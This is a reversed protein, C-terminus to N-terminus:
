SNPNENEHITILPNKKRESGHMTSEHDGHYILSTKNRYIPIRRNNLRKTLQQGVGSSIGPIKFRVRDIAEMWYGILSLTKRTTFFACDVFGVKDIEDNFPSPLIGNWCNTRNDTLVNFAYTKDKLLNHYEIIKDIKVDFVDDPLFLAFENRSKKFLKLAHDWNRWFGEKGGHPLKVFGPHDLNFSSGDDIITVDYGELEALLRELMEKREYSFIFISLTPKSEEITIEQQVVPEKNVVPSKPRVPKKSKEIYRATYEEKERIRKDALERAKEEMLAKQRAFEERQKQVLSQKEKLEQELKSKKEAKLREKEEKAVAAQVKKLEDMEQQLRDTYRKKVIPKRLM